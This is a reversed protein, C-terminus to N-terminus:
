NFYIEYVSCVNVNRREIQRESATVAMFDFFCAGSGDDVTVFWNQGDGMIETGLQDPGWSDMDVNSWYFFMIVEGSQNILTVDRNYGDGTPAVPTDVQPVTGTDADPIPVIPPPAGSDSGGSSSIEFDDSGGSDGFESTDDGMSTLAFAGVGALVIAGIGGGVIWPTSSSKKGTGDTEPPAAPGRDGM